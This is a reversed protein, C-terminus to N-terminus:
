GFAVLRRGNAAAGIALELRVRVQPVCFAHRERFPFIGHVGILHRGVDLCEEVALHFGVDGVGPDVCGLAVVLVSVDAQDPVLDVEVAIEVAVFRGPGDRLDLRIDLGNLVVDQLHQLVHPGSLFAVFRRCQDSLASM